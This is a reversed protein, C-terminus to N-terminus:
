GRIVSFYPMGLVTKDQQVSAVEVPEITSTHTVIDNSAAGCEEVNSVPMSSATKGNPYTM